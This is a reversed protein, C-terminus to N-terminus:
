ITGPMSILLGIVSITLCVAYAYAVIFTFISMLEQSIFCILKLFFNSLSYRIYINMDIYECTDEIFFIPPLFLTRMTFSPVAMGRCTFGPNMPIWSLIDTNSLSVLFSFFPPFILYFQPSRTVTFINMSM